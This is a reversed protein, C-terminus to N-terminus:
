LLLAGDYSLYLSLAERACWHTDGRIIDVYMRSIM